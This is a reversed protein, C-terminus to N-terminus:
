QAEVKIKEAFLLLFSGLRLFPNKSNEWIFQLYNNSTDIFNFTDKTTINNLNSLLQQVDFNSNIFLKLNWFTIPTQELQIKINIEPLNIIQSLGNTWILNITQKSLLFNTPYILEINAEDNQVEILWNWFHPIQWTFNDNPHVLIKKNQGSIVSYEFDFNKLSFWNRPPEYLIRPYYTLRKDELITYDHLFCSHIIKLYHYLKINKSVRDQTPFLIRYISSQNLNLNKQKYNKDIFEEAPISWDQHNQGSENLLLTRIQNVM